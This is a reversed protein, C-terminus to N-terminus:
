TRGKKGRGQKVLRRVVPLRLNVKEIELKDAVPDALKLYQEYAAQSDVYEQMQDYSIALFYYPAASKPDSQSLWEFQKAALPYNKLEFLATAFNAHLTRNQPEVQVLKDLLTAAQAFQRAQVLAAAYGAAPTMNTPELAAARRCFDLAKMPDDRRYLSCLRNLLGTNNPDTALQKEIDAANTSTAANIQKRLENSGPTTPPLKDLLAIADATRGEAAAIRAALLDRRANDVKLTQLTTAIQKAREVDHDAIAFEASLLLAAVNRPDMDLTRSVSAKAAKRDGLANELAARGAWLSAAVAAKGDTLAAVKALTAGLMDAGAGSNIQLDILARYAPANAPDIELAHKLASDADAYVGSRTEAESVAYKRVLVDGLMAWALSWDARLATARRLSAEAQSLDGLALEAVARQYEAEPFEPFAKLAKDYEAIAGKLDGKEHLDQGHNFIAIAQDSDEQAWTGATTVLTM